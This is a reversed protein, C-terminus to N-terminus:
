PLQWIAILGGRRSVNVVAERSSRGLFAIGDPSAAFGTVAFFPTLGVKGDASATPFLEARVPASQQIVCTAPHKLAKELEREWASQSVQHGFVVGEGGYARNPKVVLRERNRRAFSALEVRKGNPATTIREFFLRTWLLHKRFLRKQTLTFHRSFEPSTFLEWASKHDFEGAVSSIAQNRIFAERMGAVSRRPRERGMELIELVM